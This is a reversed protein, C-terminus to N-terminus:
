EIWIWALPCKHPGRHCRFSCSAARLTRSPRPSGSPTSIWSRRTAMTILCSTAQTGIAMCSNALSESSAPSDAEDRARKYMALVRSALTDDQEGHSWTQVIHQLRHEVHEAAHYSGEEFGAPRARKLSRHLLGLVRGAERADQVDHAWPRGEIFGCLEYVGGGLQLLSNSDRTGILEAVPVRDAELALQLRHLVAVSYPDDRGSARRKLLFRGQEAEIVVKSSSASGIDLPRISQVVGLDYHAIARRLEEPEFQSRAGMPPETPDGTTM